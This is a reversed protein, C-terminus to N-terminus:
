LPAELPAGAHTRESSASFNPNLYFGTIRGGDAIGSALTNPAGPVDIPTFPGDPGSKLAFGHITTVDIRKPDDASGNGTFGVVRRRDDIDLPV